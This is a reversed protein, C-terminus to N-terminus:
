VDTIRIRRQANEIREAAKSHKEFLEKNCRLISHNSLKQILQNWAEIDFDEQQRISKDLEEPGDYEAQVLHVSRGGFAEITIINEVLYRLANDILWRHTQYYDWGKSKIEDPLMEAIEPVKLYDVRSPVLYIVARLNVNRVTVPHPSGTTTRSVDDMTGQTITLAEDETYVIVRLRPIMMPALATYLRADFGSKQAASVNVNFSGYLNIVPETFAKLKEPVPCSPSAECYRLLQILKDPGLLPAPAELCKKKLDPYSELLWNKMAHRILGKITFGLVPIERKLQGEIDFTLDWKLIPLSKPQEAM